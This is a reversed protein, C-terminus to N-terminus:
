RQASIWVNQMVVLYDDTQMQIKLNFPTEGYISDSKSQLVTEDQGHHKCAFLHAPQISAATVTESQICTKAISISFLFIFQTSNNKKTTLVYMLVKGAEVM